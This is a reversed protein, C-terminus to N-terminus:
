SDVAAVAARCTRPKRPKKQIVVEAREALEYGLERLRKFAATMSKGTAAAIEEITHGMQRLVLLEVDGADLTRLWDLLDIASHIGEEPSTSLYKVPELELACAAEDEFHGDDDPLGDLHLLETRGLHYNRQDSADRLTHTRRVLHRGFDAARLKCVHVCLADDMAEGTKEAKAQYQEWTMGIGEQMRDDQEAHLLRRVPEFIRREVKRGFEERLVATSTTAM